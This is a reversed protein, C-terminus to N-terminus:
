VSIINKESKIKMSYQKDEVEKSATGTKRYIHGTAFIMLEQKRDRFITYIGDMSFLIIQIYISRKTSRKMFTDESGQITYKLLVVGQSSEGFILEYINYINASVFFIGIVIVFVRSKVKVADLFLFAFLGLSYILGNLPSFLSAPRVIDITYNCLGLAVILVVNPEQLLRKAIVLSTKTICCVWAYFGLLVLCLLVM